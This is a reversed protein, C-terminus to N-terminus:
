EGKPNLDIYNLEELFELTFFNQAPFLNEESVKSRSGLFPEPTEMFLVNGLNCGPRLSLLDTRRALADHLRRAGVSRDNFFVLTYQGNSRRDMGM